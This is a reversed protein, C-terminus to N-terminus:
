SRAGDLNQEPEPPKPAPAPGAADLAQACSRITSRAAIFRTWRGEFVQKVLLQMDDQELDPYQQRFVRASKAVMESIEAQTKGQELKEATRIAFDVRDACHADSIPAATAPHMWLLVALTAAVHRLRITM